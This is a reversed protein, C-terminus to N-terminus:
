RVFITAIHGPWGNHNDALQDMDGCNFGGEASKLSGIGTDFDNPTNTFRTIEAADYMAINVGIKNNSFENAPNGHWTPHFPNICGTNRFVPVYANPGVPPDGVLYEVDLPPIADLFEPLTQGGLISGFQVLRNDGGCAATADYFLLEDGPVAAYTEHLVDSGSTLSFDATNGLTDASTWVDYLLNHADTGNVKVILTWGGGSTTMDCYAEFPENPGKGDPDIDYIGSGESLGANLIELCNAPECEEDVIGNCNDDLGNLCVEEAGPFVEPKDDDCDDGNEAVFTENAECLCAPEGAGFTDEDSDAWFDDCGFADVEDIEGDCDNDLQDCIELGVGEMPDCGQPSGGVCNQVTHICVGQGCITTGLGEDVLADCDNDLGDCEELAAGEFPDCEVVLGNDCPYVVHHCEGKGCIEWGLDEDVLGDCDNDVGDCKELDVGELPDCEVVQGDICNPSFHTCVGKGCTTTGQDEDVQGDCNNDAGDCVEAAGAHTAADLPACDSDDPDGDGDDDLDICDKLGDTDADPYGEDATSDCDNDVGDCLEEAGPFVAADGPACDEGDPSGDGDKDDECADGLGDGDTDDQGQNPVLPCNDDDNLVDDGDIDEDCADGLGDGDLDGQQSNKVGVCNDVSDPIGDGDADPDCADGVGDGDMDEQGPNSVSACNDMSNPLSDGDKDEDICDAVDNGDIDPYNEDVEGDCDNDIGDCLEDAGPYAAPDLPACDLGDVSGDNDDDDDICNKWGDGDGDPYGEDVSWNCNNDKGDCVEEAGPYVDWDKPACDEDDSVQDNDDDLDCADGFNDLDFDDQGPNFDSPCNDLGDAVGDGDNDDTICDAIGDDNTDQFGEDVDGDCDNDEGDCLEEKAPEGDCVIEGQFCLEVGVCTGFENTNICGSGGTEEDVEGDCDDDVGNCLDQSPDDATCDTLGEALCLREGMCLGWVNEVFCETTAGEDAYWEACPCEDGQLVCQFSVAGSVDESELCFYEDPCPKEESCAGGCFSGKEGYSLCGDDSEMGGTSCDANAVCPRGLNMFTPACIYVEDPLSPKHLACQWGFPCESVCEQTCQMGDPTQICYGSGCQEGDDCPYGPQGPDPVFGLDLVEVPEVDLWKDPEVGTDSAIDFGALGAEVEGFDMGQMDQIIATGTGGGCATALFFLTVLLSKPMM